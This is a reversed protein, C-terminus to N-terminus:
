PVKIVLGGHIRSTCEDLTNALYEQAAEGTCHGTALQDLALSALCSSTRELRDPTAARLHLGGLVGVIPLGPFHNQAHAITNVIGAHACGTIIFLGKETEIWLAQEDLIADPKRGERDLFFPEEVTEWPNVRPIPGSVWIGPTIECPATPHVVNSHEALAARTEVDVGIMRPEGDGLRFRPRLADAHLYVPAAPARTLVGPLGGTHDYHGHSVVIADARELPVSLVVANRTLLDTQGADFLICKDRHEVWLALGHEGGLNPTGAENDVLVAIRTTM